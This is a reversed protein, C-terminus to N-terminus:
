PNNGALRVGYALGRTPITVPLPAQPYSKLGALLLLLLREADM